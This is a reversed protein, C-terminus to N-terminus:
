PRSGSPSRRPAPVGRARWLCTAVLTHGRAFCAAGTGRLRAIPSTGRAFCATWGGWLRVPKHCLTRDALSALLRLGESSHSYSECVRLLYTKVMLIPPDAGMPPAALPPRPPCTPLYACPQACEKISVRAAATFAPRVGQCEDRAPAHVLLRVSRPRTCVSVADSVNVCEARSAYACM